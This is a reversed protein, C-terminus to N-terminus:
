GDIVATGVFNDYSPALEEGWIPYEFKEDGRKEYMNLTTDKDDKGFFNELLVEQTTPQSKTPSCIGKCNNKTSFQM